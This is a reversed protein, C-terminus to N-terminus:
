SALPLEVEVVTGTGPKSAVHFLGGLHNVREEMGILGLGRSRRPDFGRGDDAVSLGIKSSEQWVRVMVSRAQAHRACNHLAEQVVRYICTKYEDAVEGASDDAAVVVRMGTRKSVERAQWELAPVLGLDDLMSPRLLLTMNRIVQVSAEALRKISEVHRRMEVFGPNADRPVLAAANGAEMLLASLSQGVEDHLERSIARREAEQASVLRASLDQLEQRAREGEEYRAHLETELRLIRRMTFAALVLGVVLTIVVIAVLRLRLQDFMSELRANGSALELENMRDIQDILGLVAARRGPLQPTRRRGAEIVSEALDFYSRSESRLNDFLQKESEDLVPAARAISEETRRRNDFWRQTDIMATQNDVALFFDRVVIASQYIGNRIEELSQTRQQYADRVEKDQRRVERMEILADAGAASMLLLLGGFGVLLPRRGSTFPRINM